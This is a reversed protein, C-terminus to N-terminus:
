TFYPYTKKLLVSLLFNSMSKIMQLTSVVKTCANNSTHVLLLIVLMPFLSELSLNQAKVSIIKTSILIKVCVPMLSEKVFKGISINIKSDLINNKLFEIKSERIPNPKDYENIAVM